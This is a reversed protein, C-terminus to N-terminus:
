NRTGKCWTIQMKFETLQQASLKGVGNWNNQLKKLDDVLHPMSLKLLFHSKKSTSTLNVKFVCSGINYSKSTGPTVIATIGDNRVREVIAPHFAKRAKNKAFGNSWISNSAAWITGTTVKPSRRFISLVGM